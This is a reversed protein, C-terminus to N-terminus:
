RVAPKPFRVRPMGGSMEWEEVPWRRRRAVRLLAADPSVVVPNGVARLLALDSHSDAYAYSAKLDAGEAEAYRRLWAARAEGVLPPEAMFGTYRGDKVQLRAAIVEDFLPALPRVFPEAAATIMITRHRAARHERIRRVAAASVKQFMFEAVVDDILRDVGEVSADEFRRFFTRLFEGRDRRDAMLYSPIRSFVSVLEGPWDEWPLDAMRAWVYSEVVNSPLITGEMDFLALVLQERERIRVKPKVRATSLARLGITVAPCHVDVLYHHWDVTAADFPFTRQDAESLSRFLELTRDDTYIVEAETYAGYLDAYRRVFEVRGRDRDVRAVLERMKKSKPLHTVVRDAYEVAKEATKLLRGVKLHGPFDWEPVRIEGRGREPLPNAEFYEKVLEYLGLYQLPNRAGSSVHYYAPTSPKPPHAAVAVMANVVYDVPIIDVIGEPIGPFEPITGRGYALIIPEAMKFGEIWGPYPHELASEIISPRVISLPVGHESALEEVAREGMAKTFTYNDPWGLTQARARGYQVLRKTVWQKRREEADDSVSQPGARSHERKAKAMLADLIEPRRSAAEVDRRAQLALEAEARWNVRHDLTAEPIVGKRNGAVYATSVHVLHPRNGAALLHEYFRVAGLLNTLFGEDIPPDFSVTAACHMVVDVDGPFEPLEEAFDGEIVEVREDLIRAIGDAGVRDSLVNFTPRSMLSEVRQRGTSGLQPRALLAMTAGPVDLLLREFVAQGLFGTVGTVLVKQGALRQALSAPVGPNSTAKEVM